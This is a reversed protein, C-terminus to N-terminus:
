AIVGSFVRDMLWLVKELRKGCVLKKIQYRKSTLKGKSPIVEGRTYKQKLSGSATGFEYLGESSISEVM